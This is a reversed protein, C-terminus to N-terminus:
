GQAVELGGPTRKALEGTDMRMIGARFAPLLVDIAVWERFLRSEARSAGGTLLYSLAVDDRMVVAALDDPLAGNAPQQLDHLWDRLADRDTFGGWLERLARAQEADKRSFAPRMAIEHHGPDLDAEDYTEEDENGIYEGAMKRLENYADYMAPILAEEEIVRRVEAAVARDLPEGDAWRQRNTSIICSQLLTHDDWLHTPTFARDGLAGFTRVTAAQYWRILERRSAFGDRLSFTLDTAPNSEHDVLERQQAQLTPLAPRVVQESM